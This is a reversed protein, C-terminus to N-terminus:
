KGKTRRAKGTTYVRYSGGPAATSFTITLTRDPNQQYDLRFRPGHEAPETEFVAVGEKPSSVLYNIAHGENDVYFARLQTEGAVQYVVTLDQHSLGTKEGPKPAYDARSRRVLVKGGLDFAMSFGGGAAEGPQGSGEIAEWEGVLFRYPAWADVTKATQSATGVPMAQQCLGSPIGLTSMSLAIAAIRSFKAMGMGKRKGGVMLHM